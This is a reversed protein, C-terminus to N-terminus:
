FPSYPTSFVRQGFEDEDYEEEGDSSSSDQDDEDADPLGEARGDVEYVTSGASVRRVGGAPSLLPTATFASEESVMSQSRSFRKRLEDRTMTKRQSFLGIGVVMIFVGLYFRTEQQWAQFDRYTRYYLMGSAITFVTGLSAAASYTGVQEFNRMGIQQLVIETLLLAIWSLILALSTFNMLDGKKILETVIKAMTISFSALFALSLALNVPLPKNATFFRFLLIPVITFAVVFYVVFPFQTWMGALVHANMADEEDSPLPPADLVVLLSGIMILASNSLDWRAVRQMFYPRQKSKVPFRFDFREKFFFKAVMVSVFGTTTSVSVVTSQSAFSLALFQSTQSAYYIVFGLTWLKSPIHVGNSIPDRLHATRQM